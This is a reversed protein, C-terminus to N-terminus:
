ELVERTTFHTFTTGLFRTGSGPRNVYITSADPSIRAFRVRWTQASTDAHDYRLRLPVPLMYNNGALRTTGFALANGEGGGTDLTLFACTRTVGAAGMWVQGTVETVTDSREPTFSWTTHFAGESALPQTDDDPVSASSTTDEGSDTHVFSQLIAPQLTAAQDWAHAVVWVLGTWVCAAYENQALVVDGGICSTQAADKITIANAGTNHVLVQHGVYAGREIAVSTSTSVASSSSVRVYTGQANISGGENLTQESPVLAPFRWAALQAAGPQIGLVQWRTGPRLAVEDDGDHVILEGRESLTAGIDALTRTLKHPARTEGIIASQYRFLMDLRQNLQRVLDEVREGESQGPSLRVPGFHNSGRAM